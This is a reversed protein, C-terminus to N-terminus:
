QPPAARSQRWLSHVRDPNGTVIGADDRMLFTKSRGYVFRHAACITSTNITAIQRESLVPDVVLAGLCGYLILTPTLPLALLTNFSGFGIPTPGIGGFPTLSVPSDSTLLETSSTKAVGWQRAALLRLITDSMKAMQEVHWSNPIDVNLKYRKQEVFSKAAHYPVAPLTKKSTTVREVVSTWAAPSSVMQELLRVAVEEHASVAFARQRKGRVILLTVFNLLLDRDVSSVMANAITRKVAPGLEDELKALAHEISMPDRDDRFKTRYFDREAGADDISLPFERGLQCDIGHFQGRADAFTRLYRRPVYHHHRPSKKPLQEDM